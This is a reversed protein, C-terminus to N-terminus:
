ENNEQRRRNDNGANARYSALPERDFSTVERGLKKNRLIREQMARQRAPMKSLRELEEETLVVDEERMPPAVIIDTGASVTVAAGSREALRIRDELEGDSVLIFKPRVAKIELDDLGFSGAKAIAGEAVIRQVGDIRIFALPQESDNIYGTYRVRKALSGPEDIIPQDDPLEPDVIDPVSTVEPANDLMGFRAAISGPDIRMSVPQETSPETQDSYSVGPIPANPPQAVENINPTLASEPLGIIGIGVAALICVVAIVQYVLTLRNAKTRSIIASMTYSTREACDPVSKPDGM